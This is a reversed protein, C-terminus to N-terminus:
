RQVGSRKRNVIELYSAELAPLVAAASYREVALERAKRELRIRQPPNELIGLIAGAFEGPQDAVLLHEGPTCEIGECGASTTVIAKGLAMAELIKLRIGGGIRLPAVYIAAQHVWPIVNEVWGTFHIAPDRRLPGLLRDPHHGVVVLRIGKPRLRPVVERHFWVLGDVNPFYDLAGVFVLDRNEPSTTAPHFSDTDIGPAQYELPLDPARESIRDLDTQSIAYVRDFRRCLDIEFRETKVSQSRLFARVLPNRHAAACRALLLGDFNEKYHVKVGPFEPQVYQAAYYNQAHVLDFGGSAGLASVKEAMRLNWFRLAKFPLSSFASRLLTGGHRRPPCPFTWLMELRDRYDDAAKADGPYHTLAVISVEHRKRMFEIINFLVLKGGRDAPYPLQPLVYLIRM